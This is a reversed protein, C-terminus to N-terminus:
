TSKLADTFLKCGQKAFNSVKSKVNAAGEVGKGIGHLGATIVGSVATLAGLTVIGGLYPVLKKNGKNCAYSKLNNGMWGTFSHANNLVYKEYIQLCRQVNDILMDAESNVETGPRRYYSDGIELFKLSPIKSFVVPIVRKESIDLDSCVKTVFFQISDVKFLELNHMGRLYKFDFMDAILGNRLYDACDFPLCRLYEEDKCVPYYQYKNIILMGSAVVISTIRDLSGFTEKIDNILFENLKDFNTVKDKIERAETFPTGWDVEHKLPKYEFPKNDFSLTNQKYIHSASCQKPVRPSKREERLKDMMGENFNCQVPEQRIYQEVPEETYAPKEEYTPSSKQEGVERNSIEDLMNFLVGELEKLKQNEM